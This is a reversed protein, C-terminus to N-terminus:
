RKLNVTEALLEDAVRIVRANAQFGRQTTIMDSFESALDVNSMELTGAIVIANIENGARGINAVGSINNAGYVNEGFQDLGNPNRVRAVAFQFTDVTQGSDFTLQFIGQNSVRFGTLQGSSRGDQDSVIASTREGLQTISSLDIQVTDAGTINVVTPDWNMTPLAFAADDVSVGDISQLRGDTGFEATFVTPVGGFPNTDPDGSVTVQYVDPDSGDASAKEFNFTVLHTNGQEDYVFGNMSESDPNVGGNDSLAANLNGSMTLISTAIPPATRTLDIQIDTMNTMDAEGTVPDIRFGQVPAGSSTTLVGQSNLTFNGARTLLQQDFADAVFFGDGSIAFDTEVNTTELRGQFWAQDISGVHVGLGIFSPNTPNPSPTRGVTSYEQGLVENFTVRGRKFAITNVNAINNGVVDMRVQHNNLGSVGSGLARIM